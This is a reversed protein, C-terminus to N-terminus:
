LNSKFKESFIPVPPIKPDVGQSILFEDVVDRIKRSADRLSFKDDRYRNRAVQSIFSFQKLDQSYRLAEPRPLVRDMASSFKRYLALFDNRAEDDALVDVCADVDQINEIGDKRFFDIICSKAYALEDIDRSVDKVVKEVEAVDEDAFNSLAERLHKTVGVYDIIYGAFKNKEVRNVRAIAQLLNHERILDDLYMVQEIPADFGTLLMSQVIIIGIDGNVNNENTKGFPLKFGAIINKHKQENTFERMEPRDNESGSIVVEAKLRSLRDLDIKNGLNEPLSRLFNDMWEKNSLLEDFAHKYRITAERSVAVVQAKFGNPFIHTLYHKLMDEAKSKITEAAELYAKWERRRIQAKADESERAEPFVDMFRKDMENPNSVYAKHAKGEYIIEVTVGDEVAQRISYKDIYDGFTWITRDIPTGTFALKVANPLSNQLNAGLMGYQTRHAEDIMVLIKESENRFKFLSPDYAGIRDDDFKHIMVMVIDPTNNMLYQQAKTIKKAVNVTYGISKATDKLQEQLDKRDTIFVVKYGQLRGVHYMKRVAMMMTLSKGSGQTHWITGSKEQTSLESEMREIIKQVTRYQQYRPSIKIINGKPGTQFLIFSQVIDLLNKRSLVGQVFVQQSTVSESGETEIDSLAFPYPDKWEVFHEFEGTISTYRCIQRSTAVILQNYWFLKENGEKEDRRRNMYRMLQEVAEGIPDPLYASKCEIVVLPLGNIFLVIDPIFHNETGPINVKFQSIALFDNDDPNQFDIFRVTEPRGTKRNEASTSELIKELIYRNNEILGGTIGPVTLERVIPAIQEESLWPNIKQLSERLKKEIIVEGFSERHTVAPDGKGEEGARLIQWDLRELQRLLPEEVYEKENLVIRQNLSM